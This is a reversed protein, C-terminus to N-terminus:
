SGEGEAQVVLSASGPGSNPVDVWVDQTALENVDFSSAILAADDFPSLPNDAPGDAVVIADFAAPNERRKCTVGNLTLTDGSRTADVIANITDPEPIIGPNVQTTRDASYISPVVINRRYREAFAPALTAPLALTASALVLTLRRAPSPYDFMTPM